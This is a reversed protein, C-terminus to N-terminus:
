GDAVGRALNAAVAASIPTLSRLKRAPPFQTISHSSAGALTDLEAARPAPVGPTASQQPTKM